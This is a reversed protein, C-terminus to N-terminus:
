RRQLRKAVAAVVIVLSCVVHVLALHVFAFLLSAMALASLRTMGAEPPLRAELWFLPLLVAVIAVAIAALLGFAARGVRRVMELSGNQWREVRSWLVNVLLFLVLLSLLFNRHALFSSAGAAYLTAFALTAILDIAVLALV